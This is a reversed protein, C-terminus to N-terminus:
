EFSRFTPYSRLVRTAEAPRFSHNLLGFTHLKQLWQCEQV